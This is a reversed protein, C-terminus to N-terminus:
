PKTRAATTEAYHLIARWEAATVPQVSLRSGKKLLVMNKLAAIGRMAQLTVPMPLSQAYQIDVAYWRPKDRTAAPDYYKHEPKFQSPDAYGARVIRSIGVIAMPEVRSHYFFVSDGVAMADRLLNRAQYNRVGDWCTTQHPAKELDSWSFVNPESKLLWHNAPM